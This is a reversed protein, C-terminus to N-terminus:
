EAQSSNKVNSKEINIISHPPIMSNKIVRREEADEGEEGDAISM